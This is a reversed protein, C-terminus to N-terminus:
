LKPLSLTFVSGKGVESRASLDGGMAHALERSIALGLGVGEAADMRYRSVQMFPEFVKELKEPEIGIGSDRVEICVQSTEDKWSVEIHGGDPTFKVANTLLNLLIQQFRERDICVLAESGKVMSYSINKARAQPEVLVGIGIMAEHLQMTKTVLSIKGAEVKAFNLIDNILSLLHSQARTIRKLADIQAPLVPGYVGTEVLQAYGGIANLPTRLEHSMTALFNSKAANAEEAAARYKQELARSKELRLAQELSTREHVDLLQELAAIHSRAFQLERETDTM